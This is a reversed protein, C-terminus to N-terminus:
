HLIDQYFHHICINVFSCLHQISLTSVTPPAGWCGALFSTPPPITRQSSQTITHIAPRPKAPTARATAAKHHQRHSSWVRSAKRRIRHPLPCPLSYVRYPLRPTKASLCYLSRTQVSPTDTESLKKQEWARLAPSCFHNYVGKSAGGSSRSRFIQYSLDMLGFPANRILLSIVSPGTM